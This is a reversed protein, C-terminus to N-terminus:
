NSGPPKDLEMKRMLLDYYRAIDEDYIKKRAEVIPTVLAERYIKEFDPILSVLSAYTTNDSTTGDSGSLEESQAIRPTPWLTSSALLLAGVVLGNFFVLAMKVAAGGEGGLVVLKARDNVKWGPTTLM